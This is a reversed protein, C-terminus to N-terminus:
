SQPDIKAYERYGQALAGLTGALEIAELAYQRIKEVPAPQRSRTLKGRAQFRVTHPIGHEDVHWLAHVVSNRFDAVEKTRTLMEKIPEFKPDSEDDYMLRYLACLGDWKNAFQQHHVLILAYTMNMGTLAVILDTVKSDLKSVEMVLSGLALKYDDDIGAPKSTM